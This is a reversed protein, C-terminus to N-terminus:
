LPGWVFDIVVAGALLAALALALLTVFAALAIVATALQELTKNNM